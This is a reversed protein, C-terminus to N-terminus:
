LAREYLTAHSHAFRMTTFLRISRTNPADIDARLRALGLDHKAFSFMAHMAERMVGQGWAKRVLLCGVEASAAARDFGHLGCTGVLEHPAKLEIAWEIALGEALLRDVSALMVGVTAPEAFADDSAHRMVEADGYIAFLADIDGLGMPRLRLRAAELVPAASPLPKM